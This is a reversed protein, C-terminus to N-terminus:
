EEVLVYCDEEYSAIDLKKYNEDYLNVHLEVQQGMNEGTKINRFYGYNTKYIKYVPKNIWLSFNGQKEVEVFNEIPRAM